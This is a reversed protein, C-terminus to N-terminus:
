ALGERALEEDYLALLDAPYMRGLRVLARNRARTQKRCRDTYEPRRQRYSRQYAAYAERCSTCPEEGAKYHRQAGGYTGCPQPERCAGQEVPAATM